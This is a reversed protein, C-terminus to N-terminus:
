RFHKAFPVEAARNSICPPRSAYRSERKLEPSTAFSIRRGPSRGGNCENSRRRVIERGTGAGIQDFRRISLRRLPRAGIGRAAAM